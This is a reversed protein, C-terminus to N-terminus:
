GQAEFMRGAVYPFPHFPECRLRCGRECSEICCAGPNCPYTLGFCSHRYCFECLQVCAGTSDLHCPGCGHFTTQPSVGSVQVSTGMLRYHVSTKYLSAEAGFGPLTM